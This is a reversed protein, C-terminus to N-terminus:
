AKVMKISVKAGKTLKELDMAQVMPHQLAEPMETKVQELLAEGTFGVTMEDGSVEFININANFKQGEIEGNLNLIDGTKKWNFKTEDEPHEKDKVIGTGDALLELSFNSAEEKTKESKAEEKAKEVYQKFEEPFDEGLVLDASSPDFKWTGELNAEGCSNLFLAITILVISIIIRKM